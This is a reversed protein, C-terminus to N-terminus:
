LAALLRKAFYKPQSRDIHLDQADHFRMFDRMALAIETLMPQTLKIGPELYIAEIYLTGTKRDLRPDFRGILRDKHLIPLCFYGWKRDKAPKYAELVQEFNWLQVDRGSPYFLSDFPSLFTTRDAAIAGDSAMELLNLHDRHVILDHEKQNSLRARIPLLIEESILAEIFPRAEGRKMDYSYDSAQAPTCVGLAKVARELVFRATEEYSPESVDVWDPLVRETIDYHRQFNTRAAIMLEGRDYLVELARKAPKWDWWSGREPGDHKFDAARLPGESRVREIVAQMLDPIGEQLLWNAHWGGSQTSKRMMSIRYRYESLPVYSVGHYWYEFLRREKEGYALLDLDSLEYRGLRSWLVLFHSRHVRQLTDLQLCGLREVVGFIADQTPSPEEDLSTSLGQAHLALARMAELSFLTDLNM